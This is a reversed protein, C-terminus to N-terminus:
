EVVTWENISKGNADLMELWSNTGGFYLFIGIENVSKFTLDETTTFDKIKDSYDYRLKEGLRASFGVSGDKNLPVTPMMKAGAKLLMENRKVWLATAKSERTDIFFEIQSVEKTWRHRAKAPKAKPKPLDTKPKIQYGFKELIFFLTELYANVTKEANTPVQGEPNSLSVLNVGKDSAQALFLQELHEPEIEWPPTITMVQNFEVDKLNAPFNTTGSAVFENNKLLFYLTHETKPIEQAKVITITGEQQNFQITTQMESILVDLKLEM